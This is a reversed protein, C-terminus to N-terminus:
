SIWTAPCTNSDNETFKGTRVILNPLYDKWFSCEKARSGEGIAVTKDVSFLKKPDLILHQRTINNFVPWEDLHM